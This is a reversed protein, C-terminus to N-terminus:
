KLILIVIWIVLLMYDIRVHAVGCRADDVDALVM